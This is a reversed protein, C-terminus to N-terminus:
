RFHRYRPHRRRHSGYRAGRRDAASLGRGGGWPLDEPRRRAGPHRAAPGGFRAPARRDRGAVRRDAVRDPGEGPRGRGAAPSLGIRFNTRRRRVGIPGEVPGYGAAADRHTLGKGSRAPAAPMTKTPPLTATEPTRASVGTSV